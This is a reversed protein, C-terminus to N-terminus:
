RNANRAEMKDLWEPTANSVHPLDAIDCLTRLMVDPIHRLSQTGNAFLGTRPMLLSAARTRKHTIISQMQLLHQLVVNLAERDTAQAMMRQLSPILDPREARLQNAIAQVDM